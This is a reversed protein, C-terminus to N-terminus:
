SCEMEIFSGSFLVRHNRATSELNYWFNHTKKVFPFSIDNSIFIYAYAGKNCFM